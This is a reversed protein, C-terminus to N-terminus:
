ILTRLNSYLINVVFFIDNTNIQLHNNNIYFSVRSKNTLMYNRNFSAM